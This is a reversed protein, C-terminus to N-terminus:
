TFGRKFWTIFDNYGLTNIIDHKTAWGRRAVSVGLPMTDMSNIEHSDTNIMLKIRQKLAERVLTDPLDLRSPSANIEIAIDHTHCVDFIKDWDLEYGDRKGLLRGTPHGLVRVKPSSLLAKLVRKTMTDRDHNFSSHVSVIIGDVYKLAKDPLAIIGHPLIDVECMVVIQVRCKTSLKYSYYHHEYYEKRAKMISVIDDITHGSLRPNHDSLGVYEYRMNEAKTLYEEIPNAGIDHSTQLDYDTHIHLDGKIDSFDVLNPLSQTIAAQIEGNDERLEPPIYPLGMAGYFDEESKYKRIKGNTVNKIGYENLRLGKTLSFNRLAINHSKSGTFYQMMSGYSEPELVRVDVQRGNHLLISAGSPGREIMKEHPYLLFYDLVDAPNNTAVGIDIDGITSVLRRLSGLVDVREVAAHSRLYDTIVEATEQAESLLIRKEKIAGKEYQSIGALLDQESKEGFGELNAIRHGQAAKKLGEIATQPDNLNFATILKYAKKPGLGPVDLLIFISQPIKSLVSDFHKVKGTRFLEDMHGAITKGLGSETELTGDSWIDKLPKALNAVIEAAKEYALTKFRNEGLIQYSIAIKQLTKAIDHNNM